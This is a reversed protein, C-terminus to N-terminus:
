LPIIRVQNGCLKPMEDSESALLTVPKPQRLAVESVTADMACKHGDVGAGKLLEAAAKAAQETVSEM